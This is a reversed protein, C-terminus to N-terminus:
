EEPETILECEKFVAVEARLRKLLKPGADRVSLFREDSMRDIDKITRVGLQHLAKLICGHLNLWSDPMKPFPHLEPSRMWIDPDHGKMWALQARMRVANLNYIHRAKREIWRVNTVSMNRNALGKEQLLRCVEKLTVDDDRLRMVEKQRPTLRRSGRTLYEYM